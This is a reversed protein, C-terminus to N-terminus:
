GPLFPSPGEPEVEERYIMEGACDRVEVTVPEQELQSYWYPWHLADKLARYSSTHGRVCQSCPPITLEFRWDETARIKFLLRQGCM